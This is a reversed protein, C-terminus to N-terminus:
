SGLKRAVIQLLSGLVAAVLAVLISSALKIEVIPLPSFGDGISGSSINLVAPLFGFSMLAFFTINVVFGVVLLGWFNVPFKFFGLVPEVAFSATAFLLGGVLLATVRGFSGTDLGTIWTVLVWYILINIFFYLSRTM